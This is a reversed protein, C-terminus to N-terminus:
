LKIKYKRHQPVHDLGYCLKIEIPPYNPSEGHSQGKFDVNFPYQTYFTIYRTNIILSKQNLGMEISVERDSIPDQLHNEPINGEFRVLGESQLKAECEEMITPILLTDTQGNELKKLHNKFIQDVIKKVDIKIKRYESDWQKIMRSKEKHIEFGDRNTHKEWNKKPEQGKELIRVEENLHREM